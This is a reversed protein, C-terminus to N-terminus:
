KDATQSNEGPKIREAKPLRKSMTLFWTGQKCKLSQKYIKDMMKDTFCTSNAFIM